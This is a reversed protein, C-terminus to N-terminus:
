SWLDIWWNGTCEFAWLSIRKKKKKKEKEKPTTNKNFVSLPYGLSHSIAASIMLSRGIPKGIFLM